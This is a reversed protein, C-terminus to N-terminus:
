NFYCNAKGDKRFPNRIKRRLSVGLPFYRRMLEEQGVLDFINEKTLLGDM